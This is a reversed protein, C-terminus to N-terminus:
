KQRAEDAHKVCWVPDSISKGAFHTILAKCGGHACRFTGHFVKLEPDKKKIM